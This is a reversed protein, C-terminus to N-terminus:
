EQLKKTFSLTDEAKERKSRINGLKGRYNGVSIDMVDAAQDEPLQYYLVAAVFERPSFLTSEQLEGIKSHIQRVIEWGLEHADDYVEPEDNPEVGALPHLEERELNGARFEFAYVFDFASDEDDSATELAAITESDVADYAAEFAEYEIDARVHDNLYRYVLEADAKSLSSM